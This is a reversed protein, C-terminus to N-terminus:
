LVAERCGPVGVHFILLEDQGLARVADWARLV